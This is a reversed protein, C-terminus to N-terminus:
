ESELKCTHSHYSVCRSSLPDRIKANAPDSRAREMLSKMQRSRDEKKEVCFFYIGNCISREVFSAKESVIELLEDQIKAIDHM